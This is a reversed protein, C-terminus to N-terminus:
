KSPLFLRIFPKLIKPIGEKRPLEGYIARLLMGEIFTSQNASTTINSRVYLEELEDDTLYTIPEGVCGSKVWRDYAKDLIKAVVEDSYFSVKVWPDSSEDM